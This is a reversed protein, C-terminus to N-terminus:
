AKTEGEMRQIAHDLMARAARLVHKRAARQHELYGPPFITEVGQRMEDRAAKLAERAEEPVMERLKSRMEKSKSEAM